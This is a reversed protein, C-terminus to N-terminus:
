ATVVDDSADLNQSLKWLVNKNNDMSFICDSVFSFAKLALSGM